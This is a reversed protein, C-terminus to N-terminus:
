KEGKGTKEPKSEPVELMQITEVAIKKGQATFPLRHFYPGVKIEIFQPTGGVQEETQMFEDSASGQVNVTELVKADESFAEYVFQENSKAEPAECGTINALKAWFDQKPLQLRYRNYLEKWLPINFFVKQAADKKQSETGYTLHKAPESVRVDGRGELLGFARMAAIKNWYQGNRSSKYELLQALSDNKNPTKIADAKYTEYIKKVDAVLRPLRFPDSPVVYNGIRM